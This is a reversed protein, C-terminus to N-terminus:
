AKTEKQRETGTERLIDSEREARKSWKERQSKIERDRGGEARHRQTDRLM